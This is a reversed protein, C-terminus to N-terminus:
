RWPPGPYWGVLSHRVGKTVPAVRHHILSPFVIAAGKARFEPPVVYNESLELEGGEYEEPDSLQIVISLKREVLELTPWFVDIHWDYHGKQDSAYRSLQFSRCGKASYDVDFSEANAKAVAADIHDFLSVHNPRKLWVIDATRIESDVIKNRSVAGPNFEEQSVDSVLKDCIEPNLLQPFCRTMEYM